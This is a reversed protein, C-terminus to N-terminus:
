RLKLTSLAVLACLICLIYFRTVVQSEYWGKKEFHHHLPAMLFVREGAGRTRKTYKFWGKQIMVSGAEAVFVGGAIVLVFPQHILVAMIGLAGGLALSGTDGMFMRAPHCNYWLFGLGAGFMASCFVTLEGAGSVYPVQLYTAFQNNGAIYTFIIFVITVILTCGIALGDLGDTLNVANSSGVITVIAVILGLAGASKMVPHKYFPVQIETILGSTEPLFWLYIGIFGALLTQVVLKVMSTAGASTQRTIKAYDDYFGLGALVVLSLLTLVLLENWQAWFLASLDVVTVILIGGMTPTGKKSLIRSKLDGGEEAKDSYDQGFKLKKLWDIVHPGLWWSLLLATIAAGTSRVTIYSFVRLPSALEQWQTGEAQARLYQTIYFIM